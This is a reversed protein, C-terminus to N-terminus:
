VAQREYSYHGQAAAVYKLAALSTFFELGLDLYVGAGNEGVGPVCRKVLYMGSKGDRKISYRDQNQEKM